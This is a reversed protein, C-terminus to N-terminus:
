KTQRMSCSFGERNYFDLRLSRAYIDEHDLPYSTPNQIDFPAPKIGPVSLNNKKTIINSYLHKARIRKLVGM